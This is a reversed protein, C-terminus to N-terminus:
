WLIGQNSHTTDCPQNSRLISSKRQYKYWIMMSVNKCLYEFTSYFFSFIMLLTHTLHFSILWDCSQSSGHSTLWLETSYQQHHLSYYTSRQPPHRRSNHAYQLQSTSQTVLSRHQAAPPQRSLRSDSSSGPRFAHQRSSSHSHSNDSREHGNLYPDSHGNRDTLIEYDGYGSMEHSGQFELPPPLVVDISTM